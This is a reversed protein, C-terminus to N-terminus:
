SDRTLDLISLGESFSLNLRWWTSWKRRQRINCRLLVVTCDKQAAFYMHSVGVFKGKFCYPNGVGNPPLTKSPGHLSTLQVQKELPDSKRTPISFTFRLSLVDIQSQTISRLNPYNAYKWSLAGELGDTTKLKINKKTSWRFEQREM